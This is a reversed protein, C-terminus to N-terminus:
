EYRKGGAELWGGPHRKRPDHHTWHVVGGKENWEYEGKFRLTDGREVPARPALDINHAILITHGRAVSVLLRQHRSGKNDDPLVKVIEGTAEVMVDSRQDAYARLIAEAGDRTADQRQSQSQHSPSSSPSSGGDGGTYQNYAAVALVILATLIRPLTIKQQQAM